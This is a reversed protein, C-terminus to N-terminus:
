RGKPHQPTPRAQSWGIRRDGFATAVVTQTSRLRLKEEIATILDSLDQNRTNLEHALATLRLVAENVPTTTAM